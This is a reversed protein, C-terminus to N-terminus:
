VFRPENIKVWVLRSCSNVRYCVGLREHESPAIGRVLEVIIREIMDIQKWHDARKQLLEAMVRARCMELSEGKCKKGKGKKFSQPMGNCISDVEEVSPIGGIQRQTIVLTQLSLLKWFVDSPLDMHNLIGDEHVDKDKGKYVVPKKGPLHKGIKKGSLVMAVLKIVKEM